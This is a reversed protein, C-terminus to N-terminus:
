TETSASLTEGACVNGSSPLHNAASVNSVDSVNDPGSRQEAQLSSTNTAAFLFRGRMTELTERRAKGAVGGVGAAVCETV